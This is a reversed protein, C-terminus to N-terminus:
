KKRLVGYALCGFRADNDATSKKFKEKKYSIDVVSYGEPISNFLTGPILMLTEKKDDFAMFGLKMLQKKTASDVQKKFETKTM